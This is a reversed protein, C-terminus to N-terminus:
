EGVEIQSPDNLIVEPKGEYLKINGKIRVTKDLYYKEPSEVFKYQNSSFIVSTFCHNPYPKDFNFFVTNTKSRYADAVKGEIIKEQGIFKGAQCPGVVELGTAEQTLKKWKFEGKQVKDETAKASSSWKCGIKKEKAEKEAKQIEEKYKQNEPSFRAIALGENVLELNVNQSDIFLYRLYRQYQDQDSQDKELKVEKSLVLEELRNKAADYCPYSKEDADIGLLRVSAGGEVIVTDGDIVKTVTKSGVPSVEPHNVGFKKSYILVGGIILAALIIVLSLKNKRNKAM